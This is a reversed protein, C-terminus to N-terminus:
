KRIPRHSDRGSPEGESIQKMSGLFRDEHYMVMGLPRFISTSQEVKKKPSTSIPSM